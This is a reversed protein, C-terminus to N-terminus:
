ASALRARFSKARSDSPGSAVKFVPIDVESFTIDIIKLESSGRSLWDLCNLSRRMVDRNISPAEGRTNRM